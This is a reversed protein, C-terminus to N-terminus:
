DYILTLILLRLILLYETLDHRLSTFTKVGTGSVMKKSLGAHRCVGSLGEPIVVVSESIFWDIFLFIDVIINVYVTTTFM